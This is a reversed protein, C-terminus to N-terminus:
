SLPFSAADGIQNYPYFLLFFSLFILPIGALLYPRRRGLRTRTRDALMGEFSRHYQRLNQQDLDGNRSVGPHHTGCRDPLDPLLLQDSGRIWRRLYGGARLRDEDVLEIKRKKSGHREKRSLEFNLTQTLLKEVKYQSQQDISRKWRRWCLCHSVGRWWHPEGGNIWRRFGEISRQLAHIGFIPVRETKVRGGIFRVRPLPRDTYIATANSGYIEISAAQESAAAMSSCIEILAGNELEVIGMALDEVEVNKFVQKATVGTAFVASERMGMVGCGFFSQGAHDSDAAQRPLPRIGCRIKLIIKKVIGHFTSAGMVYKVSQGTQVARALRFCAADYRYQYNVALESRSKGGDPSIEIGEAYTRTVPKEVFIHKGAAIAQKMMEFHLNHPVALYVGDLSANPWCIWM